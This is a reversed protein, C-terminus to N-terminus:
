KKYRSVVAMSFSGIAATWLPWSNLKNMPSVYIGIFFVAWLMASVALGRSTSLLYRLVPNKIGRM